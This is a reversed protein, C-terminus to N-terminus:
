ATSLARTRRLEARALLAFGCSMASLAAVALWEVSGNGHDTDFRDLSLAELWDPRVATLVFLAGTAVAVDAVTSITGDGGAAVLTHGSAAATEAISRIEAGNVLAVTPQLGIRAFAAAIADGSEDTSTGARRNLIVTVGAHPM